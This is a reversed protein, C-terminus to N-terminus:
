NAEANKAALYGTVMIQTLGGIEDDDDLDYFEAIHSAMIEIADDDLYQNVLSSFQESDMNEVEGVFETLNQHIKKM